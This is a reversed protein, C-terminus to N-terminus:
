TLNESTVVSCFRLRQKMEKEACCTGVAEQGAHDAELGRTLEALGDVAALTALLHDAAIALTAQVLTWGAPSGGTLPFQEPVSECLPKTLLSSLPLNEEYRSIVGKVSLIM